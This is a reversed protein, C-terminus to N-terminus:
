SDSELRVDPLAKMAAVDAALPEALVLDNVWGHDPM